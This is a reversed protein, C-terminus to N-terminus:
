SISPVTDRSSITTNLTAHKRKKLEVRVAQVYSHLFYEGCDSIYQLRETSTESLEYQLYSM